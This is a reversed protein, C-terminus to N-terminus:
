IMRPSPDIAAVRAGGDHLVAALTGDGCGLDLVDRGAVEGALALIVRREMAETIEGISSARWEAYTEPGLGESLRRSAASLSGRGM